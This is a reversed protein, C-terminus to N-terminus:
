LHPVRVESLQVESLQSSCQPIIMIGYYQSTSVKYTTRDTYVLVYAFFFLDLVSCSFVILKSM